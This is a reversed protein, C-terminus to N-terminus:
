YQKRKKGFNFTRIEREVWHGTNYSYKWLCTLVRKGPQDSKLPLSIKQQSLEQFLLASATGM